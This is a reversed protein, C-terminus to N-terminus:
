MNKHRKIVIAHKLFLLGLTVMIIFMAGILLKILYLGKLESDGGIYIGLVALFLGTSILGLGIIVSAVIEKRPNEVADNDYKFFVLKCQECRMARINPAYLWNRLKSWYKKGSKILPVGHFITMGDRTSSWRIRNHKGLVYGPKLDSGCKLCKSPELEEM